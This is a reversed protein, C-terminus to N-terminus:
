GAAKRPASDEADAAAEDESRVKDLFDREEILVSVLSELVRIRYDLDTKRAEIAARSESVTVPQDRLDAFLPSSLFQQVHRLRGQRERQESLMDKFEALEDLGSSKKETAEGALGSRAGSLIDAVTVNGADSGAESGTEPGTEPAPAPRRKRPQEAMGTGENAQKEPM